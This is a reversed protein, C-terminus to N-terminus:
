QRSPHNMMICNRAMSDVTNLNPTALTGRTRTAKTKSLITYRAFAILFATIEIRNTHTGNHERLGFAAKQSLIGGARRAPTVHM